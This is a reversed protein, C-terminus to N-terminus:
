LGVSPLLPWCRIPFLMHDRALERWTGEPIQSKTANESGNEYSACARRSAALRVHKKPSQNNRPDCDDSYENTKIMKCFCNWRQEPLINDHTNKKEVLRQVNYGRM